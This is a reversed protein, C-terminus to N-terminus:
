QTRKWAPAISHLTSCWAKPCPKNKQCHLGRIRKRPLPLPGLCELGARGCEWGGLWYGVFQQLSLSADTQCPMSRKWKAIQSAVIATSEAKGTSYHKLWRRWAVVLSKQSWRESSLELSANDLSGLQVYRLVIYLLIYYISTYLRASDGFRPQSTSRKSM